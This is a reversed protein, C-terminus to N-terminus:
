LWPLRSSGNPSLVIAYREYDFFCVLSFPFPSFCSTYPSFCSTYPSFSFIGVSSAQIACSSFARQCKLSHSLEKGYENEDKSAEKNNEKGEGGGKENEKDKAIIFIIGKSYFIDGAFSWYVYFVSISKSERKGKPSIPEISKTTSSLELVITKSVGQVFSLFKNQM